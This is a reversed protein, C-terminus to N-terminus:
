GNTEADLAEVEAPRRGDYVAIWLPRGWQVLNEFTLVQM